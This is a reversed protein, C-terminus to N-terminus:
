CEFRRLNELRMKWLEGAFSRWEVWKSKFVKVYLNQEHTKQRSNGAIRFDELKLGMWEELDAWIRGGRYFRGKADWGFTLEQWINIQMRANYNFNLFICYLVTLPIPHPQHWLWRRDNEVFLTFQTLLWDRHVKNKEHKLPPLYSDWLTNIMLYCLEYFASDWHRFLYDSLTHM